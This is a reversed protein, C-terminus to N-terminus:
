AEPPRLESEPPVDDLALTLAVTPHMARKICVAHAFYGHQGRARSRLSVSAMASSRPIEKGCLACIPDGIGTRHVVHAVAILGGPRLARRRWVELLMQPVSPIRSDNASGPTTSAHWPHQM